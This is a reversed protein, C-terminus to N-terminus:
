NNGLIMLLKGSRFSGSMNQKTKVLFLTILSHSIPSDGVLLM